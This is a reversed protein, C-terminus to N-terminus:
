HGTAARVDLSETSLLGSQSTSLIPYRLPKRHDRFLFCYVEISDLSLLALMFFFKQAFTAYKEPGKMTTIEHRARALARDGTRAAPLSSVALISCSVPIFPSIFSFSLTKLTVAGRLSRLIVTAPTFIVGGIPSADYAAKIFAPPLVITM